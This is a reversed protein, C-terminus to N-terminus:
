IYSALFIESAKGRSSTSSSVSRSVELPFLRWSSFLDKMFDCDRYSILVKCGRESARHAASALRILDHHKFSGVGYEGRNRKSLDIYPPDLYIFDGDNARNISEEFDVCELQCDQLKLSFAKFIEWSPIGLNGKGRSVNFGGSQNTRYVGNFCYRNLYIFRAARDIKGLSLPDISRIEYYTSETSQISICRNWLRKPNDRVQIYAQMLHENYDSLLAQKNKQQLFFVGSGLFPEIYSNYKDPSVLKLQNLLKKKSGAWRFISTTGPIGNIIPENILSKKTLASM